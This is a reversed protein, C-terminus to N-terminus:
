ESSTRPTLKARSVITQKGYRSDDKHEKVSARLTYEGEDIEKSGSAFWVIPAVGGDVDAEMRVITTVGYYGESYHVGIVRVVGLDQAGGERGIYVKTPAQKREREWGLARQYAGIISAAYGAHKGSCRGELAIKKITELYESKGSDIECAWKIAKEALETDADSSYLENETIFDKWFRDRKGFLLYYASDATATGGFDYASSRSKWGIRRICTQVATLYQTLEVVPQYRGESYSEECGDSDLTRLEDCMQAYYAFNTADGCRIFDALCNRGVVKREGGKTLVFVDKRYRKSKCHDCYFDHTRYETFDGEVLPKVVNGLIDDNEVVAVLRWGNICPEVGKIEVDYEPATLGTRGDKVTREALVRVVVPELGHKAARKNLKAVKENLGALGLEGVTVTALTQM